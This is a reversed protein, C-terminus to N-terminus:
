DNLSSASRYGIGADDLRDFITDADSDETLLERVTSYADSQTWYIFGNVDILVADRSDTDLIRCITKNTTTM